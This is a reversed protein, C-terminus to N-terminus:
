SASTRKSSLRLRGGEHHNNSCAWRKPRAGPELGLRYPHRDRFGAPGFAGEQRHVQTRGGQARRLDVGHQGVVQAAGHDLDGLLLLDKLVVPQLRHQAGQALAAGADGDVVGAGAGAVRTQLLHHPHLGVHDLEVAREDLVDV